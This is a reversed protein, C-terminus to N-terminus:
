SNETSYLMGDFTYLIVSIHTNTCKAAEESYLLTAYNKALHVNISFEVLVPRCYNYNNQTKFQSEKYQVCSILIEIIM